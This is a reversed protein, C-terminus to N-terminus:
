DEKIKKITEKYNDSKIIANGAVIINVGADKLLHANETNIGGDAEIDIDISNKDCYDKLNRIKNITGDILKQGGKGPEVTMILVTHIYKLLDYIKEEPTGPKISLGVKIGKSKIYDIMDMVEKDDKCAEYHFTILNPNFISYSDIYNKVDKVMLHVDLPTNTIANLYECYELMKDNTNDEVFEGDMVDIHFYDTKAEELNYLTKIIEDKDANLISTSVEVM